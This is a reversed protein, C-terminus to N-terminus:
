RLAGSMAILSFELVVLFIGTFVKKALSPEESGEVSTFNKQIAAVPPIELDTRVEDVHNVKGTATTASSTVTTTVEVPAADNHSNNEDIKNAMERVILNPLDKMEHSAVHKRDWTVYGRRRKLVIFGSCQALSFALLTVPLLSIRRKTTSKKM